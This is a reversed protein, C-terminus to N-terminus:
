RSSGPLAKAQQFKVASRLNVGGAHWDDPFTRSQRQAAARCAGRRSARWGSDLHRGFLRAIPLPNPSIQLRLSLGHQFDFVCEPGRDIEGKIAPHHLGIVARFRRLPEGVLDADQAVEFPEAAREHRTQQLGVFLLEADDGGIAAAAHFVEVRLARLFQEGLQLFEAHAMVVRVHAVHGVAIRIAAKTQNIEFKGGQELVVRRRGRRRGGDQFPAAPRIAAAHSRVVLIRKEAQPEIGAFLLVQALQAFGRQLFHVAGEGNAVAHAAGLRAFEGAPDRHFLNGGDQRAMKVARDAAVLGAVGLREVMQELLDM